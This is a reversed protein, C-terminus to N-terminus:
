CNIIYQEPLQTSSYKIANATRRRLLVFHFKAHFDDPRHQGQLLTNSFLCWNVLTGFSIHSCLVALREGVNM